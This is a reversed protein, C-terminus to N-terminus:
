TKGPITNEVLGLSVFFFRFSNKMWIHVGMYGLPHGCASYVECETQSPPIQYQSRWASSQVRPVDSKAAEAVRSWGLGGEEDTTHKILFTRVYLIGPDPGRASDVDVDVNLLFQPAPRPLFELNASRGCTTGVYM